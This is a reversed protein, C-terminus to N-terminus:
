KDHVRNFLQLFMILLNKVPIVFFARLIELYQIQEKKMPIQSSLSNKSDISAIWM